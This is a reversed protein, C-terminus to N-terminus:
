GCAAILKSIGFIVDRYNLHKDIQSFLEMNPMGKHSTIHKDTNMLNIAVVRDEPSTTTVDTMQVNSRISSVILTYLDTKVESYIGMDIPIDVMIAQVLNKAYDYENCRSTDINYVDVMLSILSLTDDINFGDMSENTASSSISYQKRIQVLKEPAWSTIIADGGWGLWAVAGAIRWPETKFKPNNKALEWNRKHRRFGSIKGIDRASLPKGAALQKARNWGVDLMGKVKSGHKAKWDLVKKANAKASSPYDTFMPKDRNLKEKKPKSEEYFTRYSVMGRRDTNGPIKKDLWDPFKIDSRHCVWRTICQNYSSTDLKFYSILKYEDDTVSENWEDPDIHPFMKNYVCLFDEVFGDDSNGDFTYPFLGREFNRGYELCLKDLTNDDMMSSLFCQTLIKCQKDVISNINRHIITVTNYIPSLRVHYLDDILDILDIIYKDIDDLATMTKMATMINVTVSPDKYSSYGGTHSFIRDSVLDSFLLSYNLIMKEHCWVSSSEQIFDYLFRPMLSNHSKYLRYLDKLKSVVINNKKYIDNDTNHGIIGDVVAKVSANTYSENIDTIEYDGHISEVIKNNKNFAADYLDNMDMIIPDGSEDREMWVLFEDETDKTPEVITFDIDVHTRLYLPLFNINKEVLKRTVFSDVTTGTVKQWLTTDINDHSLTLMYYKNSLLVTDIWVGNFPDWHENGRNSDTSLFFDSEKVYSDERDFITVVGGTDELQRHIHDITENEGYLHSNRDVIIEDDGYVRLSGKRISVVGYEYFDMVMGIVDIKGGDNKEHFFYRTSLHGNVTCVPKNLKFVGSNRKTSLYSRVVDFEFLGDLYLISHVNNRSSLKLIDSYNKDGNIKYSMYTVIRSGINRGKNEIAFKIFKPRLTMAYAIASKFGIDMKFFDRIYKNNEKSIKNKWYLADEYTIEIGSKWEDVFVSILDNFIKLCLSEDTSRNIDFGIYHMFRREIHPMNTIIGTMISNSESLLSSERIDAYSSVLDGIIYEDIIRYGNSRRYDKLTYM